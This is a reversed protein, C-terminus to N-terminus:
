LGESARGVKAESEATCLWTGLGSGCGLGVKVGDGQPGLM